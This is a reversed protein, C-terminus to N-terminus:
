DRRKEVYEVATRSATGANAIAEQETDFTVLMDKDAVYRYENVWITKPEQYAKTVRFAIIHRGPSTHLWRVTNSSGAQHAELPKNHQDDYRVEVLTKPHLPCPGGNWGYWKGDNYNTM